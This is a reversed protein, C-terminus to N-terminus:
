CGEVVEIYPAEAFHLPADGTNTLAFTVAVTQGLRVDGLDVKQQDVTLKPTGTRASDALRTNTRWALLAVIGLLVAGALVWSFRRRARRQPSGKRKKM